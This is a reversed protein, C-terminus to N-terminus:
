RLLDYKDAVVQWAAIETVILYQLFYEEWREFLHFVTQLHSGIDDTAKTHVGVDKIVRAVLGDKCNLSDVFQDQLSYREPIGVLLHSYFKLLALELVTLLHMVGVFSANASEAICFDTIQHLVFQIFKAERFYCFGLM